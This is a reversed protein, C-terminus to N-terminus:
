TPTCTSARSWRCARDSSAACARSCSAKATTSTSPSWRATCTSTSATSRVRTRRAARRDRRRHARVRRAHGAGVAVGREVRPGVTRHGLAHLAEIAGAAPINAGALRPAIKDGFTLEPWGGGQEFAAFTAKSPAFTNTEHQFGGVAIRAM